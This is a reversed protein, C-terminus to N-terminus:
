AIICVERREQFGQLGKFLFSNLDLEELVVDPLYPCDGCLALLILRHPRYLCGALFEELVTRLGFDGWLGKPLLSQIHM